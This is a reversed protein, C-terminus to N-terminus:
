KRNGDNVVGKAKQIQESIRINELLRLGMFGIVVVEMASMDQLWMALMGVVSMM